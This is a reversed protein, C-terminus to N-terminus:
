GARYKITKPINSDIKNIIVPNFSAYDGSDTEPIEIIGSAKLIDVVAAAEEPTIDEKFAARRLYPLIIPHKPLTDWIIKVIQSGRPLSSVAFLFDRYFKDNPHDGINMMSKSRQSSVSDYEEDNDVKKGYITIPNPFKAELWQWFLM